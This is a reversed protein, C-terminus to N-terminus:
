EILLTKKKNESQLESKGDVQIGERCWRSVGGAAVVQLWWKCGGGPEEACPNMQHEILHRHYRICLM